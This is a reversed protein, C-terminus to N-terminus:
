PFRVETENFLRLLFRPKTLLERHQTELHRNLKNPTMSDAALVKLWLQTKEECVLNDEEVFKSIM